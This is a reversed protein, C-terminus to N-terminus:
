ASGEALQKAQQEKLIDALRLCASERAMPHPRTEDNRWRTITSPATLTARRIDDASLGLDDIVFAIVVSWPVENDTALQRLALEGTKLLALKSANVSKGIDAFAAYDILRHSQAM